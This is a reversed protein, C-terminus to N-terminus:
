KELKLLEFYKKELKTPSLKDINGAKKRFRPNKKVLLKLRNRYEETLLKKIASKPSISSAFVMNDAMRVARYKLLTINPFPRKNFDNKKYITKNDFVISKMKKKTKNKRKNKKKKLFFKIKKKTKAM